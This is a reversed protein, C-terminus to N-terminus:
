DSKGKKEFNFNFYLFIHMKPALRARHVDRTPHGGGLPRRNLGWSQFAGRWLVRQLDEKILKTDYFM